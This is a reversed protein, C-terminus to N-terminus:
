GGGMATPTAGMMPPAGAQPQQPSNQAQHQDLANKANMVQFIEKGLAQRLSTEDDPLQTLQTIFGMRAQPDSFLGKAMLDASAKFVAQKNLQGPPLKTLDILSSMLTDALNHAKDYEGPDVAGQPAPAPGGAPAGMMPQNQVLPNM